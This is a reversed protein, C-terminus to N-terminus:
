ITRSVHLFYDELTPTDIRIQSYTVNKQALLSLLKAINSEEITIIAWQGDFVCTGAAEATISHVKEEGDIILLHVTATTLKKALNFPTDKAIIKGKNLMIVEDCVNSVEDMNHSTFLISVNHERRQAHVFERVEHAIDPDLSATPEDLLAVKPYALFAKALMLRTSQGASLFSREKDRLNWIGFFKLFKEIRYTREKSSIGYLRGYVDLNEKVTLRWPLNVYTSAFSVNQLIESRHTSLNKGFYSISGSTPSLATLLMQITTTKGAGNPGLFGLIEGEALSFSIHDVATYPESKKKWPLIPHDSFVKTLDKVSLVSFKSMCFYVHLEHLFGVTVQPVDSNYM